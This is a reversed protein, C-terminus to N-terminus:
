YGFLMRSVEARTKGLKASLRAYVETKDCEDYRVAAGALDAGTLNIHRASKREVKTGTMPIIAITLRTIAARSPPESDEEDEPYQEEDEEIQDNDDSLIDDDKDIDEDDPRGPTNAHAAINIRQRKGGVIAPLRSLSPVLAITSM